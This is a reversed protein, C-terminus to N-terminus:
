VLAKLNRRMELSHYRKLSVKDSFTRKKNKNACITEEESVSNRWLFTFWRETRFHAFDFLFNSSMFPLQSHVQATKQTSEDGVCM